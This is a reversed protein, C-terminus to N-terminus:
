LNEYNELFTNSIEKDLQANVSSDDGSLVAESDGEFGTFASVTDEVKGTPAPLPKEAVVKINPSIKTTLSQKSALMFLIGLGVLVILM